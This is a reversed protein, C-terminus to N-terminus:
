GNAKERAIEADILYALRFQSETYAQNCALGAKTGRESDSVAKAAVRWEMAAGIIPRYRAADRLLDDIRAVISWSPPLGSLGHGGGLLWYGDERLRIPFEADSDSSRIWYWGPEPNTDDTM